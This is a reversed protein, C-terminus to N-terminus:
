ALDHQENHFKEWADLDQQIKETVITRYPEDYRFPDALGNDVRDKHTIYYGEDDKLLVCFDAVSIKKLMEEDTVIMDSTSGYPTKTTITRGTTHKPAKYYKAM